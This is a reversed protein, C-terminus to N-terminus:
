EGEATRELHLRYVRINETSLVRTAWAAADLRDLNSMPTKDGLLPDHEGFHHGNFPVERGMHANVVLYRYESTTLMEALESSPDADTQTLELGPFGSVTRGHIMGGNPPWSFRRTGTASWKARGFQAHM